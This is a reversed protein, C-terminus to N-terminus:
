FSKPPHTVTTTTLYSKRLSNQVIQFAGGKTFEGIYLLINSSHHTKSAPPAGTSFAKVQHSNLYTLCTEAMASHAAGFLDPHAQLYEQLTFHILRVTSAEKGVVVLGQCWTLLTGISPVNDTNLNPSGVDVALAHHLEDTKLPRESHSIWMLSTM